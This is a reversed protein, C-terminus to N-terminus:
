QILYDVIVEVIFKSNFLSQVEELVQARIAEKTEPSTLEENNYKSVNTKIISVIKSEMTEVKPNLTKYDEDANNISLSATIKAYHTKGDPGIALNTTLKSEDITYNEINAIDYTPAETDEANPSELELDIIQLIKTILQDTRQANPVVTFVIYASLTLNVICLILVLMTLMNKKM